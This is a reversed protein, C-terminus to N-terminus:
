SVIGQRSMTDYNLQELPSQDFNPGNEYSLYATEFARFVSCDAFGKVRIWYTM